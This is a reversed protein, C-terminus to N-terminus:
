AREGLREFAAPVRQIGATLAGAAALARQDVLQDLPETLVCRTVASPVHSASNAPASSSRRAVSASTAPRAARWSARSAPVGGPVALVCASSANDIATSRRYPAPAWGSPRRGNM